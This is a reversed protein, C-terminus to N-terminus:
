LLQEQLTIIRSKSEGEHHRQWRAAKTSLQKVLAKGGTLKKATQKTRAMIFTSNKFLNAGLHHSLSRQHKM